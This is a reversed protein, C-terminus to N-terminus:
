RAVIIIDFVSPWTLPKVVTEKGLRDALGKAEKESEKAYYVTDSRFHTTSARDLREVKYGLDKLTESMKRAASLGGSGALVKIRLGKADAAPAKERAPQQVLTVEKIAAPAKERMPQEVLTVEKIADPAKERMPQEVPIVAKIADAKLRRNEELLDKKEKELSEIRIQREGATKLDAKEKETLTEIRSQQQGVVKRLSENGTQLNEVERQLEEKSMSFKKVERDSSGDFYRFVGCGSLLFVSILCLVAGRKM